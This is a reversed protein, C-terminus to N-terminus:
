RDQALSALRDAITRAEAESFRGHVLARGGPIEAMIRPAAVVRGDILIAVKEGIHRKTFRALRLGAAETLLIGVAHEGRM